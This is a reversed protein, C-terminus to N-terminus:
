ARPEIPLYYCVEYTDFGAVSPSYCHRTDASATGGGAVLTAALAAVLVLLARM